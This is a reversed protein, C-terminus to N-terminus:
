SMDVRTARAPVKIEYSSTQTASMVGLVDRIM